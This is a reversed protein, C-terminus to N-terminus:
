MPLPSVGTFWPHLFLVVGFVVASILVVKVVGGSEGADSLDRAGDRANILPIEILAWLGLVGFLIFARTTGNVLLHAASWLVVGTLM